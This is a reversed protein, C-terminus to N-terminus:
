LTDELEAIIQGHGNSDLGATHRWKDRRAQEAAFDALAQLQEATAVGEIRETTASPDTM